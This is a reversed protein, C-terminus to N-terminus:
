IQDLFFYLHMKGEAILRYQKLLIVASPRPPCGLPCLLHCVCIDDTRVKGFFRDPGRIPPAPPSGRGGSRPPWLAITFLLHSRSVEQGLAALTLALGERWISRGSVRADDLPRIVKRICPSSTLHFWRISASHIKENGAICAEGM